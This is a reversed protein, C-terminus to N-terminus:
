LGVANAANPQADLRLISNHYRFPNIFVGNEATLIKNLNPNNLPSLGPTIGNAFGVLFPDGSAKLANVYCLQDPKHNSFQTACNGAPNNNGLLPNSLGLVTPASLINANTFDPNNLNRYEYALSFFLRDTKIPGGVRFGTYVNQSYAPPLHEIGNFFNK